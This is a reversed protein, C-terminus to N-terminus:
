REGTVVWAHGPGLWQDCPPGSATGVAMAAIAQAGGLKLVRQIGCLRAAVLVAPDISGDPRPPSCLVVEPCGALRAPIGLMLVTSPLPASGAPVYLGVRGIPRVVRECEVGPATAIKYPQQMGEAHFREIRQAAEAM